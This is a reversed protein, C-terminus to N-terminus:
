FIIQCWFDCANNDRDWDRKECGCVKLQFEAEECSSIRLCNKGCDCNFESPLVNTSTQLHGTPLKIPTPEIMFGVCANDAWLGVKNKRAMEQAEKFEAQYKYPIQYTYEFGFGEEILKKNVLTGDELYIYRLLRGYKDIDGQSVDSEMRVKKNEMLEQARRSAEKGFCEVPKRPDVVEPTDLGILRVTEDKDSINIVLTDGDVIKVVSFLPEIKEQSKKDRFVLFLVLFFVLIILVVRIIKKM